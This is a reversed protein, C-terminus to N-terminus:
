AILTPSVTGHILWSRYVAALQEFMLDPANLIADSTFGDTVDSKGKKMMIAAHKVTDGTIKMVEQLSDVSIM